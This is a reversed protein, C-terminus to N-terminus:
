AVQRHCKGRVVKGVADPDSVAEEDDNEIDDDGAGGDRKCRREAL